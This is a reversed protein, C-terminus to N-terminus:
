ILRRTIEMTLGFGFKICIFGIVVYVGNFLSLSIIIQILSLYIFQSAHFFDTTFAFITDRFPLWHPKYKNEWTDKKNWGYKLKGEESLSTLSAFIGALVLLIILLTIEIKM